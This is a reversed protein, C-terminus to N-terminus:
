MSVSRCKIYIDMSTELVEHAFVCRVMWPAVLKLADKNKNLGDKRYKACFVLYM